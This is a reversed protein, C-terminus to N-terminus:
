SGPSASGRSARWSSRARIAAIRPQASRAMAAAVCSPSRGSSAAASATRAHAARHGAVAVFRLRVTVLRCLEGVLEGVLLQCSPQGRECMERAGVHDEVPERSGGAMCLARELDAASGALSLQEREDHRHESHREPDLASRQFGPLEEVSCRLRCSKDAVDLVQGPVEEIAAEGRECGPIEVYRECGGLLAELEQLVHFRPRIGAGRGSRECGRQELRPLGVPADM